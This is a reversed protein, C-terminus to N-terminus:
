PASSNQTVFSIWPLIGTSGAWTVLAPILHRRLGAIKVSYHQTTVPAGVTWQISTRDLWGKGLRVTIIVPLPLPLVRVVSTRVCNPGGLCLHPLFCIVCHQLVSPFAGPSLEERLLESNGQWNGNWWASTSLGMQPVPVWGWGVRATLSLRIVRFSFLTWRHLLLLHLLHPSLFATLAPSQGTLSCFM